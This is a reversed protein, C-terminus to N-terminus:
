GHTIGNVEEQAALAVEGPDTQLLDQPRRGGLFGNPSIFWFSMSWGNKMNSLINMVDGLGPHPSIGRKSTFAYIPFLDQDNHKIVFIQRNAAWESLAPALLEAQVNFHKALDGITLFSGCTLIHSKGLALMEREAAAIGGRERARNM